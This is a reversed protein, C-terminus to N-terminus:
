VYAPPMQRDDVQILEHQCYHPLGDEEYASDYDDLDMDSAMFNSNVTIIKIPFQNNYNKEQKQSNEYRVKIQIYHYIQFTNNTSSPLIIDNNNNQYANILLEISQSLKSNADFESPNILYKNLTLWNPPLACNALCQTMTFLQVLSVEVSILKCQEYEFNMNLHIIDEKYFCRRSGVLSFKINSHDCEGFEFPDLWHRLNILGQESYDKITLPHNLRLFMVNPLRNLKVQISYCLEVKETKVSFPINCSISMEIDWEKSENAEMIISRIHSTDSFIIPMENWSGLKYNLVKLTGILQISCNYFKMKKKNRNSIKLKIPVSLRPNHNNYPIILEDILPVTELQINSKFQKSKAIVNLNFYNM